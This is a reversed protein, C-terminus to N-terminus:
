RLVQPVQGMANDNTSKSKLYRTPVYVNDGEQMLDHVHLMHFILRNRIFVEIMEYMNCNYTVNEIFSLDWYTKNHNTGQM